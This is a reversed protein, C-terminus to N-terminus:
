ILADLGLAATCLLGFLLNLRATAGDLSLFDQLHDPNHRNKGKRLLKLALPLALFTMLFTFPMEKNLGVARPTLILLLVFVFPSLLLFAYYAASRRDGLITAMTRIGARTDSEMDRWNNAHLIASVLLSMPIAWVAPVWSLSGTQVTWAGLAGLVGFNLFVALDGLGNYKLPLPGWTYLVGVTVGILGIWLIPMGVRLFVLFGILLGTAMFLWAALLAERPTVWGRVVSGSVPNVQRDIGKEYDYADNMLNAGTHLIAMGFLAALFLLVNLPVGGITIAMVTGFIVPMTSAPLAFARMAVWWKRICFPTQNKLTSEDM